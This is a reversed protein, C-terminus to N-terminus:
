VEILSINELYNGESHYFTIIFTSEHLNWLHKLGKLMNVMSPHESLASKLFHNLCTKLLRYNRFYM